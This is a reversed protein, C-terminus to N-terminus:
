RNCVTEALPKDQKVVRLRWHPQTPRPSTLARHAVVASCAAEVARNFEAGELGGIRLGIMLTAQLEAFELVTMSYAFCTPRESDDSM